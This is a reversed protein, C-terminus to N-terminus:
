NNDWVALLAIVIDPVNFLKHVYITDLTDGLGGVDLHDEGLLTLLTGLARVRANKSISLRREGFAASQECNSVEPPCIFPSYYYM